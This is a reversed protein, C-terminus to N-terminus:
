RAPNIKTYPALPKKNCRLLSIVHFFAYETNQKSKTHHHPQHRDRHKRLVGAVPHPNHPLLDGRGPFRAPLAPFKVRVGVRQGQPVKLYAGDPRFYRRKKVFIGEKPQDIHVGAHMVQGNAQLSLLTVQAILFEGVLIAGFIFLGVVANVGGAGVQGDGSIAPGYQLNLGVLVGDLAFIQGYFVTDCHFGHALAGADVGAAVYRYLSRAGEDISAGSVDDLTLRSHRGAALQIHSLVRVQDCTRHSLAARPFSHTKKM